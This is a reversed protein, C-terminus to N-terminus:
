FKFGVSVNFTTQNRRAGSTSNFLSVNSWDHRIEGRVVWQADVAYDAGLTFSGLSAPQGLRLGGHDRVSEIRAGFAWHADHQFRAFGAVGSWTGSKGNGHASAYDANLALKLKPTAQHSVIFDVLDTQATGASGFGIGGFGGVHNPKDDGEKGSIFGLSASTKADPAFRIQAGFTIGGGPRQVQNWGATGYLSAGWQPNIQTSLRAGLHYVPQALTYLFGRSYVDDSLSEPSENGIWSYFKGADVTVNNGMFTIYAQALHKAVKSDTREGLFLIDANDGFWPSLTAGFKGSPDTYQINVQAAALRGQRNRTDFQRGVRTAGTGANPSSWGLYGEAFGTVKINDSTQPAAAPNLGSLFAILSPTILNM